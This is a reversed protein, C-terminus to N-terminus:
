MYTKMRIGQENGWTLAILQCVSNGWAIYIFQCKVLLYAIFIMDSCMQPPQFFTWIAAMHARFRWKSPSQHHRQSWFDLRGRGLHDWLSKYWNRCPMKLALISDFEVFFHLRFCTAFFYAFINLFTEFEWWFRTWFHVQFDFSQSM